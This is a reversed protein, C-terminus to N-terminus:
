IFECVLYWGSKILYIMYSKMFRKVYITLIYLIVLYSIDLLNSSTAILLNQTRSSIYVFKHKVFQMAVQAISM